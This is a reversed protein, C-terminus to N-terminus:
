HVLQVELSRIASTGAALASEYATSSSGLRPKPAKGEGKEIGKSDDKGHQEAISVQTEM